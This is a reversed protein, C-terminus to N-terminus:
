YYLSLLTGFIERVLTISILQRNKIGWLENYQLNM